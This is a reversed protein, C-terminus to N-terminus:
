AGPRGQAPRPYRRTRTSSAQPKATPPRPGARYLYDQQELASGHVPFAGLQLTLWPEPKEAHRIGLAAIRADIAQAAERALQPRKGPDAPGPPPHADPKSIRALRGHLVASVSRAGTLDASTIREILTTVNEGNLERGTLAHQLRQRQPERLYRVYDTAALREKLKSDITEKVTDRMAAAWINALYGTSASREQAQQIAETATVETADNDLIEALVVEPNVLAPERDAVPEGTVVYATNAKRGRTMGVYLSRRSLSGTVLLHATDTTLGEAVHTNGAYGLEGHDALYREPLLFPESWGGETQRRVQVQGYARGEIRLM